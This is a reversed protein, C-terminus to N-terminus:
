KVKKAYAGLEARDHKAQEKLVRLEKRMTEAQAEYAKQLRELVETALMADGPETPRKAPRVRLAQDERIVQQELDHLRNWRYSALQLAEDIESRHNSNAAPIVDAGLSLWMKEFLAVNDRRGQEQRKAEEALERQEREVMDPTVWQGGMLM